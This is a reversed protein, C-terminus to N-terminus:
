NSDEAYDFMCDKSCFNIGLLGFRFIVSGEPVGKGCCDCYEHSQAFDILVHQAELDQQAPIQIPIM